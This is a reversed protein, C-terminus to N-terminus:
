LIVESTRLDDILAKLTRSLTQVHNALAQMEAQTPPDSVVPATYTAFAARSATGTPSGWNATTDKVVFTAAAEQLAEIDTSLGELFRQFRFEAQGTANVLRETSTVFKGM